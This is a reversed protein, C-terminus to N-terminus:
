SIHALSPAGRGKFTCSGTIIGDSPNEKSFDTIDAIGQITEGNTYGSPTPDIKKVWGRAGDLAYAAAYSLRAYGIDSPLVNFSYSIQWNAGTVVGDEYPLRTGYVNTTTDTAQLQESSTTGGQLLVLGYNVGLHGSTVAAAAPEIAITTAGSAADAAVYVIKPASSHYVGFAGSDLGFVLAEVPISTDTSEALTTTRVEIGNFKITSGAPIDASLASVTLSTAGVAADASLTVIQGAALAIATGKAIPATTATVTMSTADASVGSGLIVKTDTPAVIPDASLQTSTLLGFYIRTRVGIVFNQAM